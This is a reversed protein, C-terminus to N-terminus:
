TNKIKVSKHEQARISKNYVIGFGHQQLIEDEIDHMKKAQSQTSDDLGINHLLSHTIYLALEAHPSHGRLRAEKVAREGNVILDFSKRNRIELKLNKDTTQSDSTEAEATHNSLDFSLCDTACNCNLFKENLKQIETDDVIGISIAAKALKFRKCIAKTLKKLEPLNVDIDKFNKTIKVTIM